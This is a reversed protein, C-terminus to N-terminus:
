PFYDFVYVYLLFPFITISMINLVCYDINTKVTFMGTAFETKVAAAIDASSSVEMSLDRHMKMDMLSTFENEKLEDKEKAKKRTKKRVETSRNDGSEIKTGRTPRSSRSVVVGSELVDMNDRSASDEEDMAEEKLRHMDANSLLKLSFKINECDDVGMETHDDSFIKSSVISYSALKMETDNDAVRTELEKFDHSTSAGCPDIRDCKLASEALGAPL